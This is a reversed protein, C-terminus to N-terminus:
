WTLVVKGFTADSGVMEHARVVEDMPLTAHIVPRVAGRRLLPVVTEEFTRAAAAKEAAPRTRLVTAVLTVRKRLLTGLDLEATRGGTLGVLVIRGLYGICQVDAALYPGGVLDLIANVGRGATAAQVGETFDGGSADIDVDLGLERARELKWPTRSTGLVTAGMSKALQLAATGVGSGVAHILLTEAGRLGMRIELADDATIFAEPIAAGEEFSLNSPLAIAADAPVVVYEAYGGGGVLGMVRDGPEWVSVNPGVADVEGAYELGLIDAPWGSPPPYHGQRQLLDARNVATAAVRVRVEGTGPAPDPVDKIRLVDPPGPETIVVAKM